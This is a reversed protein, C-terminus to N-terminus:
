LVATLALLVFALALVAASATGGILRQQSQRNQQAEVMKLQQDMQTIQEDILTEAAKIKDEDSADAAL